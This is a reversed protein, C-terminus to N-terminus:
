FSGSPSVQESTKRCEHPIESEEEKDSGKPYTRCEAAHTVLSFTSGETKEEHSHSYFNLFRTNLFFAWQKTTFDEIM